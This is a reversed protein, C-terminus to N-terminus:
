LVEEQHRRKYNEVLMIIGVISMIKFDRNNNPLKIFFVLAHYMWAQRSTIKWNINGLLEPYLLVFTRKMNLPPSYHFNKHFWYFHYSPEIQITYRPWNSEPYISLNILNMLHGINWFFLQSAVSNLNITALTLNTSLWCDEEFLIGYLNTSM